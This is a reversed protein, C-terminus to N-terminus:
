QPPKQHRWALDAREWALDATMADVRMTFETIRDTDDVDTAAALERRAWALDARTALVDRGTTTGVLPPDFATPDITPTM